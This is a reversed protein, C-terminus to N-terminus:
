FISKSAENSHLSENGASDVATVTFYYTSGVNLGTALYTTTPQQVTAVAAGYVGPTTSIYIRYSALDLDTNPNWSLTVSSTAPASLTLTVPITQPTNTAGSATITITAPFSGALLGATNASLTAPSTGTTTTGSTPTLTLWNANDTISWSLTGTGPNTINLPQSTPNAAGQTATFSFATPSLGITPTVPAATVTFTVPVSVTTAGTASLTMTGTQTSATLAGTTVSVTVTGNGTGSAPSVTLWPASDNASWSLTGGGTNSLSLTQTAPNAGGQQATFSLSTPSAGIAPPVPAATVTFTVPVSVTTAGTASLTM